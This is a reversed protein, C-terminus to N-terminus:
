TAASLRLIRPRLINVIIIFYLTSFLTFLLKFSFVRSGRGGRGGLVCVCLRVCVCVASSASGLLLLTFQHVFFLYFNIFFLFYFSIASMFELCRQVKYCVKTRREIKKRKLSLLFCMCIGGKLHFSNTRSNTSRPSSWGRRGKEGVGWSGLM